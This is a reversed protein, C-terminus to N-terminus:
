LVLCVRMNNLISKTLISVMLQIDTVMLSEVMDEIITVTVM